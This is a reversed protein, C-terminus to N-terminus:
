NNQSRMNKLFFYRDVLLYYAEEEPSDYSWSPFSLNMLHRIESGLMRYTLSIVPSRHDFSKVLYIFARQKTGKWTIETQGFGDSTTNRWGKLMKRTAKQNFLSDESSPNYDMIIPDNSEIDPLVALAFSPLGGRHYSVHVIIQSDRHRSLMMEDVLNPFNNELLSRYSKIVQRFVADIYALVNTELQSDPVNRWEFKKIPLPVVDGHREYLDLAFYVCRIDRYRFFSTREHDSMQSVHHNNPFKSKYDLLLDYVKRKLISVPLGDVIDDIEYGLMQVYKKRVAEGDEEYWLIPKFRLVSWIRDVLIHPSTDEYLLREKFTKRLENALNDYAFIQPVHTYIKNSGLYNTGVPWFENYTNASMPGRIIEGIIEPKGIVLPEPRQSTRARMTLFSLDESVLVGVGIQGNFFLRAFIAFFYKRFLVDATFAFQLLRDVVAQSQDEERNNQSISDSLDLESIINLFLPLNLEAVRALLESQGHDVTTLYFEVAEIGIASECAIEVQDVLEIADTTPWKNARVTYVYSRLKEFGFLLKKENNEVILRILGTRLLDQLADEHGRTWESTRLDDAAVQHLNGAVCAGALRFLIIEALARHRSDISSLRREWYLDFLERNKLTKPIDINTHDYAESLLRLMIPMRCEERTEGELEGTLAFASKYKDFALQIEDSDFNSLNIGIRQNESNGSGITRTPSYINEGLYNVFQGNDIVFEQWDFSKCSLCLKINREKLKGVIDILEAKFQRQEMPIEDLGDVFIILKRNHTQAIDDLRDVIYSLHQDRHFEWIFDNRIKESLNPFIRSASYFLVFHTDILSEAVACMFNTKGTGSEGSIAFCTTINNDLWRNFHHVLEARSIYLQPVYLRSDKHDGKLDLLNTEVQSECFKQVTSSSIGILKRAADYKVDDGIALISRGNQNWKSDEPDKLQKLQDAFVDYVEIDTGNTVIAFPAIQRLLRAYSIAQEADKSVLTHDPAKTEVIAINTDGYTLLLDSRGISTTASRGRNVIIANHGLTISFNTEFRLQDEDFGLERFYCAVAYRVDEESAPDFTQPIDKLSM